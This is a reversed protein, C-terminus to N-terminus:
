KRKLINVPELGLEICRRDYAIAAERETMFRGTWREKKYQHSAEWIKDHNSSVKRRKTVGRYKSHKGM